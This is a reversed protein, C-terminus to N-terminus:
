TAVPTLEVWKNGDFYSITGASDNIWLDGKAAVTLRIRSNQVSTPATSQIFMQPAGLAQGQRLGALTEVIEKMARLTTAMSQTDNQDFDPITTHKLM